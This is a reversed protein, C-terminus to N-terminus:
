PLVDGALVRAVAAKWDEWQAPDSTGGDAEDARSTWQLLFMITERRNAPERENFQAVFCRMAEFAQEITLTQEM